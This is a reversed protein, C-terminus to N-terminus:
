SPYYEHWVGGQCRRGPWYGGSFRDYRPPFDTGEPFIESSLLNPSRCDAPAHASAQATPTLALLGGAAAISLALALRRPISRM